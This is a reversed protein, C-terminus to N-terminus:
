NTCVRIHECACMLECARAACCLPDELDAACSLRWVQVSRVGCRSKQLLAVEGQLTIKADALTQVQVELAARQDQQHTATGDLIRDELRRRELRVEMLWSKLQEERREATDRCLEYRMQACSQLCGEIAARTNTNYLRDGAITRIGCALDLSNYIEM